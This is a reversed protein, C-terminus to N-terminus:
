GQISHHDFLSLHMQLNHFEQRADEMNDLKDLHFASTTRVRSSLKGSRELHERTEIGQMTMEHIKSKDRGFKKLAKM